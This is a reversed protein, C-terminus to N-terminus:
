SVDLHHFYSEVKATKSEYSPLLCVTKPHCQHGLFTGVHCDQQWPGSSAAGPSQLSDSAPFCTLSIVTAAIVCLGRNSIKANVHM